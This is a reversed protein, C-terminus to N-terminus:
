PPPQSPRSPDPSAPASVRGNRMAKFVEDWFAPPVAAVPVTDLSPFEDDTFEYTVSSQHPLLLRFRLKRKRGVVFGVGDKGFLTQLAGNFKARDEALQPDGFFLGAMAVSTLGSPVEVKGGRTPALATEGSPIWQLTAQAEGSPFLETARQKLPPLPGTWNVPAPQALLDWVLGGFRTPSLSTRGEKQADIEKVDFLAGLLRYFQGSPADIGGFRAMGCTLFKYQYMRVLPNLNTSPNVYRFHSWDPLRIRGATVMREVSEQLVSRDAQAADAELPNAPMLVYATPSSITKCRAVTTALEEFVDVSARGNVVVAGAPDWLSDPLVALVAQKPHREAIGDMLERIVFSAPEVRKPQRIASPWVRDDVRKAVLSPMTGRFPAEILLNVYDQSEKSLEVWQADPSQLRAQFQTKLPLVLVVHQTFLSSREILRGARDFVSCTLFIGEPLRDQVVLVKMEAPSPIPGESMLNAMIEMASRDRGIGAAVFREEQEAFAALETNCPGIAVQTSTPRNSFVRQRGVQIDSLREIGIRDVLARLLRGCPSFQGPPIHLPKAGSQGTVVARVSEAVSKVYHSYQATESGLSTAKAVDGDIKRLEERIAQAATERNIAVLRKADTATREIAFGGERPVVTASLAQALHDLLERPPQGHEAIYLPWGGLSKSITVPVGLRQSLTGCYDSARCVNGPTPPTPLVVSAILIATLPLM